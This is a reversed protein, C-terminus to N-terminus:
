RHGSYRSTSLAQRMRNGGTRRITELRRLAKGLRNQLNSVREHTLAPFTDRCGVSSTRGQRITVPPRRLSPRPRRWPRSATEVLRCGRGQPSRACAPRPSLHPGSLVPRPLDVRTSGIVARSCVGPRSVLIQRHADVPTVGLGSLRGILADGEARRGRLNAIGVARDDEAQLADLNRIGPALHGGVDERLLIEALGAHRRPQLADLLIGNRRPQPARRGVVLRQLLQGLLLAPDALGGRLLDEVAEGAGPGVPAPLAAVEVLLGIGLGEEVLQAEHEGALHHRRVRRLPEVGAQVPGIADVAGALAVVVDIELGALQGLRLRGVLMGLRMGAEDLRDGVVEDVLAADHVQPHALRAQELVARAGARVEGVQAALTLFEGAAAAGGAQHAEQLDAVAGGAGDLRAARRAAGGLHHHDVGVMRVDLGIDVPLHDLLLLDGRQHGARLDDGPVQLGDHLGADVALAVAVAAEVRVQVGRQLALDLGRALRHHGVVVDLPDDLEGALAVLVDIERGVVGVPIRVGIQRHGALVGVVGDRQLVVEQLRHLLVAVPVEGGADGALHHLRELRAVEPLLDAVGGPGRGIRAQVEVGGHVVPVGARGGARDARRVRARLVHEEVVRGAVQRGGVQQLEVIRLGLVEVDVAVLVQAPQPGHHELDGHQHRLEGRALDGLAGVLVAGEAEAVGIDAAEQHGHADGIVRSSPRESAPTRVAMM